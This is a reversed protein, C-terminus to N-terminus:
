KWRGIIFVHMRIEDASYVYYRWYIRMQSTYARAVINNTDLLNSLQGTNLSSQISAHASTAPAVEAFAAPYTWSLEGEETHWGSTGPNPNDMTQYNWCVQLGNEWRVYYGNPPNVVDLNHDVIRHSDLEEFNAALGPITIAPTDSMKPIYLSM